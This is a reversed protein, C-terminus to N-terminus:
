LFIWINEYLNRRIISKKMKMHFSEVRMPPNLLSYWITRLTEAEVLYPILHLM